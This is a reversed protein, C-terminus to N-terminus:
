RRRGCRRHRHYAAEVRRAAIACTQQQRGGCHLPHCPPAVGCCARPCRGDLSAVVVTLTQRIVKWQLRISGSFLHRVHLPRREKRQGAQPIQSERCRDATARQHHCGHRADYRDDNWRHRWRWDPNYRGHWCIRDSRRRQQNFDYAWGITLRLYPSVLHLGPLVLRSRLTVTCRPAVRRACHHDDSAHSGPADCRM